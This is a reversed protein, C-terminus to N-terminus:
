LGLSERVKKVKGSNPDINEAKLIFEKAESYNGKSVEIKALELWGELYEPNFDLLGQWYSVEQDVPSTLGLVREKKQSRGGLYYLSLNFISLATLILIGCALYLGTSRQRKTNKNEAKGM